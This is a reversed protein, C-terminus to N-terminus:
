EECQQIAPIGKKQADEFKQKFAFFYDKEFEQNTKTTVIAKMQFAGWSWIWIEFGNTPDDSIAEPIPFTEHLIYKAQKVKDLDPGALYIRNRVVLVNSTPCYLIRRDYDSYVDSSIEVRLDSYTIQYEPCELSADKDHANAHRGDRVWVRIKSIGIDKEDTRWYWINSANWDQMIQWIGGTRPGNLWFRYLLPDKESDKATALWGVTMDVEQRSELSPTLSILRPPQNQMSVNQGYGSTNPAILLDTTSPGEWQVAAVINLSIIYLIVIIINFKRHKM